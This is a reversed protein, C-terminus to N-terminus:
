TLFFSLFPDLAPSLGRWRPQHQRTLQQKSLQQKM